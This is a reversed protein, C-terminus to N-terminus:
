CRPDKALIKGVGRFSNNLTEGGEASHVFLDILFIFYFSEWQAELDAHLPLCFTCSCLASYCLYWAVPDLIKTM